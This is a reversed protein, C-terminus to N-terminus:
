DDISPGKKSPMQGKYKEYLNKAQENKERTEVKKHAYESIKEYFEEEKGRQLIEEPEVGEFEAICGFIEEGVIEEVQQIFDSDNKLRDSALEWFNVSSLDHGSVRIIDLMKKKNDRIEHFPCNLDVGTKSNKGGRMLMDYLEIPNDLNELVLGAHEPICETILPEKEIQSAVEYVSIIYEWNFNGTPNGQEDIEFFEKMGYPIECKPIEIHETMEKTMEGIIAGESYKLKEKNFLKCYIGIWNPVIGKWGGDVYLDRKDKPITKIFEDFDIDNQEFDENIKVVDIYWKLEPHETVLKEMLKDDM